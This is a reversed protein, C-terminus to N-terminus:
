LLVLDDRYRDFEFGLREARAAALEQFRAAIRREGSNSVAVWAAITICVGIVAAVFGAMHPM